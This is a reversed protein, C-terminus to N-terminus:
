QWFGAAEELAMAEPDEGSEQRRQLGVLRCGLHCTLRAHTPTPTCLPTHVAETGEGGERRRQLAPIAATSRPDCCGLPSPLLQANRCPGHM